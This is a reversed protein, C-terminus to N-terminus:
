PRVGSNKRRCGSTPRHPRHRSQAEQREAVTQPQAEAITTKPQGTVSGYSYYGIGGAGEVLALFAMCRLEQPTPYRDKAKWAFLQLVALVPKKGEGAARARAVADGVSAVPQYPM